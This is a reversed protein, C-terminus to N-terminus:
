GAAKSIIKYAGEKRECEPKVQFLAWQLITKPVSLAARVAELLKGFSLARGSRNWNRRVPGGAASMNQYAEEKRNCEPKTRKGGDKLRRILRKGLEYGSAFDPDGDAPVSVNESGRQRTLSEPKTREWEPGTPGGALAEAPKSPGTSHVSIMTHMTPRNPKVDSEPM